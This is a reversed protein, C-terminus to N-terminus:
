EAKVRSAKFKGTGNAVASGGNALIQFTFDGSMADTGIRHMNLKVQFLGAATGDPNITNLVLTMVNLDGDKPVWEGRAEGSFHDNAPGDVSGDEHLTAIQICQCPPAGDLTIYFVWTGDIGRSNSKASSVSSFASLLLATLLIFTRRLTM